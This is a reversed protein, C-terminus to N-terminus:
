FFGLQIAIGFSVMILLLGIVSQYLRVLKRRLDNPFSAIDQPDLQGRKIYFGPFAICGSIGGVLLLKGWPGGHRLLEMNKVAVSNKLHSLMLEMRTYALYLCGGIWIILGVIDAVALALLVKDVISLSM